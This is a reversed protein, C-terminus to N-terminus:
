HKHDNGHEMNKPSNAVGETSSPPSAKVSGDPNRSRDHRSHRHGMVHAGCGFRMMLFIFTGWFLFYMLTQM